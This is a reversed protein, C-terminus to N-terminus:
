FKHNIFRHKSTFKLFEPSNKSFIIEVQPQIFTPLLAQNMGTM